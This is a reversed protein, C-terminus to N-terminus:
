TKTCCRKKNSILVEENVEVSKVENESISKEEVEDLTENILKIGDNELLSKDDM